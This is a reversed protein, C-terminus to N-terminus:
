KAILFFQSKQLHVGNLAQHKQNVFASGQIFCCFPILSTMRICALFIYVAYIVIYCKLSLFILLDFCLTILPKNTNQTDIFSHLLLYNLSLDPFILLTNMVFWFVLNAIDYRLFNSLLRIKCIKFIEFNQSVQRTRISTVASLFEPTRERCSTMDSSPTTVQKTSSYAVTKTNNDHDESGSRTRRRLTSM